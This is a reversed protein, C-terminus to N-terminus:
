KLDEGRPQRIEALHISIKKERKSAIFHASFLEPLQFFSTISGSPLGNFRRQAIDRLTAQFYRCCTADDMDQVYMQAKHVDLHDNPNTTRDFLEVPPMKVKNLRLAELIKRSFQTTFTPLSGMKSSNRIKLVTPRTPGVELVSPV